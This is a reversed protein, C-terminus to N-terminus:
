ISRLAAKIVVEVTVEEDQEDIVQSVVRRAQGPNAGLGILASVAEEAVEVSEGDGEFAVVDGEVAMVRDKLELVLRQAIKQGIGKIRTLGKADGALVLLKFDRITIGSLIKQAMPPGIGSVAVLLRFLTREAETTFGYLALVDERVHLHAFLQIPDGQQRSTDFSSLSTHLHIGLGGVDIVVHTPANEALKGSVYDIM